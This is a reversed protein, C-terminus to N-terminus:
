DWFYLLLCGHRHVPHFTGHPIDFGSDFCHFTHFALRFPVDIFLYLGILRNVVQWWGLWQANPHVVLRWGRHRHSSAALADRIEDSKSKKAEEAKDSQLLPAYIAIFADRQLLETSCPCKLCNHSLAHCHLVRSQVPIPHSIHLISEGAPPNSPRRLRPLENQRNTSVAARM